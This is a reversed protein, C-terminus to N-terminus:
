SQLGQKTGNPSALWFAFNQNMGILASLESALNPLREQVFVIQIRAHASTPITMVIRHCFAEKVKQFPCSDPSV